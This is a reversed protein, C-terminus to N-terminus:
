KMRIKQCIVTFHRSKPAVNVMERYLPKLVLPLSLEDELVSSKDQFRVGRVTNTEPSVRNLNFCFVLITQLSM